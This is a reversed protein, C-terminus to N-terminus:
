VAVLSMWNSASRRSMLRSFSTSSLGSRAMPKMRKLSRRYRDRATPSREGRMYLVGSLMNSIPTNRGYKAYELPSIDTSVYELKPLFDNLAADFGAPNKELWDGQAASFIRRNKADLSSRRIRVRDEEGVVRAISARNRENKMKALGDPVGEFEIEVFVEADGTRGFRIKGIEGKGTYFWEIAEFLNTKGHNNQGVFVNFQGADVSATKISRFAGVEIRRIRM